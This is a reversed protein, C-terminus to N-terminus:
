FRGLPDSTIWTKIAALHATNIADLVHPKPDRHKQCQAHGVCPAKKMLWHLCPLTHGRLPPNAKFLEEYWDHLLNSEVDRQAATKARTYPAGRVTVSSSAAAATSSSAAATRTRKKGKSTSTAAAAAAVPAAAAQRANTLQLINPDTHLHSLCNMLNIELTLGNVPRQLDFAPFNPLDYLRREVLKLIDDTALHPLFMKEKYNVLQEVAEMVAMALPAGYVVALYGSTRAM